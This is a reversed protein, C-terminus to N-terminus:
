PHCPRAEPTGSPSLITVLGDGGSFTGDVTRAVRGYLYLSGCKAASMGSLETQDNPLKYTWVPRGTNTLRTVAAPYSTALTLQDGESTIAVPESGRPSQLTNAWTVNFEHDVGAVFADSLEDTSTGGVPSALETTGLQLPGRYAGAITVFGGSSAIATGRATVATPHTAPGTRLVRCLPERNAQFRAVYADRAAPTGIPRTCNTTAAVEGTALVQGNPLLAISAITDVGNGGFRSIWQLDGSPGLKLILGDQEHQGTGTAVFTMQGVHATGRFELAVAVGSSDAALARMTAAQATIAFTWRPRGGADVREVFVRESEDGVEGGTWYTENAPGITVRGSEQVGSPARLRRAWTCTGCGSLKMLFGSGEGRKGETLGCLTLAGAHNGAVIATGDSLLAGDSIRVSFEGGIRLPWNRCCGHPLCLVGLTLLLGPLTGTRRLHSRGMLSGFLTGSTSSQCM